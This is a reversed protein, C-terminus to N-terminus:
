FRASTQQRASLMASPRLRPLLFFSHLCLRGVTVEITVSFYLLIETLRLNDPNLFLSISTIPPKNPPLFPTVNLCVQHQHEDGSQCQENSDYTSAKRCCLADSNIIERGAKFWRCIVYHLFHKRNSSLYM